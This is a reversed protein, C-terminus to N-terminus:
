IRKFLDLPISQRIFPWMVFVRGDSLQRCVMINEQPTLKRLFPAFDIEIEYKNGNKLIILLKERSLIVDTPQMAFDYDYGESLAMERILADDSVARDIERLSQSEALSLLSLKNGTLMPDDKPEQWFFSLLNDAFSYQGMQSNKSSKIFAAVLEENLFFVSAIGKPTVNLTDISFVEYHGSAPDKGPRLWLLLIESPDKGKWYSRSSLGPLLKYNCDQAATELPSAFAQLMSSITGVLSWLTQSEANLIDSLSYTLAIGAAFGNSPFIDILRGGLLEIVAACREKHTLNKKYFKIGSSDIYFYALMNFFAQPDTRELHIIDQLIGNRFEPSFHSYDHRIFDLLVKFQWDRSDLNMEPKIFRSFDSANTIAAEMQLLSSPSIYLHEQLLSLLNQIASQNAKGDEIRYFISRAIGLKIALANWSPALLQTDLVAKLARVIDNFNEM